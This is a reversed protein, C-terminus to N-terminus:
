LREAACWLAFPVTDQASIHVGNGLVAVAFPVSAQATMDRAQRIKSRVESRPVHPLILDLFEPRGPPRDEERSQWALATAVAVAIAGAVAEEHAHTVEASLAAKEVVQNLDDAFYAGLPAVRMAAGNGYSGQGGFMGRTVERWDEGDAIRALVTHMSPGYGRSPDYREAFSKALRGQDVSGCQRLVAVVSLTMLTDDTFRWPPERLARSEILGDVVDPNIFYQEGFANGVSLGDLSERARTLLDDSMSNMRHNVICDASVRSHSYLMARGKFIFERSPRSPFCICIGVTM